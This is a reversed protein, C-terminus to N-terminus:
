WWCSKCSRRGNLYTKAIDGVHINPKVTYLGYNYSNGNYSWTILIDANEYGPYQEFQTSGKITSNLLLCNYDNWIYDYIKKSNVKFTNLIFKYIYKGIKLCEDTYQNDELMNYLTQVLEGTNNNLDVGLSEVFYVLPYLQKEWSYESQKNWIDFDNAYRICMPINEVNPMLFQWTNMCGSNKTTQLGPINIHKLNEISTIHHDIWYFECGKDSLWNWFNIMLNNPQIAYDTMYVINQMGEVYSKNVKDKFWDLSKYTDGYSCVYCTVNRDWAENQLNNDYKYKIAMASFLGDMDCHTFVIVNPFNNEFIINSM